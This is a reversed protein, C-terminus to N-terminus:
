GGSVVHHYNGESLAVTEAAGTMCAGQPDVQTHIIDPLATAKAEWLCNKDELATVVVERDQFIYLDHVCHVTM